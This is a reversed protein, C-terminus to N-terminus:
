VILREYHVRNLIEIPLVLKLMLSTGGQKKPTLDRRPAAFISVEVDNTKAHVSVHYRRFALVTGVELEASTIHKGKSWDWAEGPHTIAFLTPRNHNGWTMNLESANLVLPEILRLKDGIQPIYLQTM